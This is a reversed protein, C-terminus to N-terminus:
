RPKRRVAASTLDVLFTLLVLAALTALAGSYDFLALQSQLLVGLGGAGVVGVVVTERITVEWRYLTVAAFRPAAAPAAGYGLVQLESAGLARLARLPRRDLNEVTEAMLRGLVGATSLGLAVAGALPGPRLVFLVLLAWVPAPVARVVALLGRMLGGALRRGPGAPLGPRAAIGSVLLGIGAALAIALVSMALTAVALMALGPVGSMGGAGAGAPAAAPAPPWSEAVMQEALEWSRADALPGLDLGVVWAAVPVAVVAAALSAVLVPDRRPGSRV